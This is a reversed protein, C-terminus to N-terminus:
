MGAVDRFLPDEYSSAGKAVLASPDCSHQAECGMAGSGLVCRVVTLIRCCSEMKKRGLVEGGSFSSEGALPRFGCGGQVHYM